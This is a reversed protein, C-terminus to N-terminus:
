PLSITFTNSLRRASSGTINSVELRRNGVTADALYEFILKRALNETGAKGLPVSLRRVTGSYTRWDDIRNPDRTFRAAYEDLPSSGGPGVSHMVNGFAECFGTNQCNASFCGQSCGAYESTAANEIVECVKANVKQICARTMINAWAEASSECGLCGGM